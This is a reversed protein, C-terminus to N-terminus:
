KRGIIRRKGIGTAARHLTHFTKARESALTTPELGVTPVSARTHKIKQKQQATHLCRSQWQSIGRRLLGVTQTFIIVFSFFLGPGLLPSYPCQHIFEVSVGIPSDYRCTLLSTNPPPDQTRIVTRIGCIRVPKEHCKETGGSLHNSVTKILCRVSGEWDRRIEREDTM